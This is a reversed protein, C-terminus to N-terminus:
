KVPQGLINYRADGNVIVVQGNEIMKVVKTSVTKIDNIGTPVDGYNFTMKYLVTNAGLYDVVAKYSGNNFETVTAKLDICDVGDYDDTSLYLATYTSYVDEFTYEGAVQDTILAVYVEFGTAEKLGSFQIIGQTASADVLDTEDPTFEVEVTETPEPLPASTYTIHYVNGNTLTVTAEYDVGAAGQKPTLEAASYGIASTSTPGFWSYGAVMDALTYTHGLQLPTPDNTVIDFRFTNSADELVVYWDGDEEYYKASASTAVVEVTQKPGATYTIHYSTGNTLTVNAEYDTGENGQKPTLTAASYDVANNANPGFWSYGPDMDDLTYTHDFELPASSNTVVDFRFGTTGNSLVIFWDGDSAYYQASASTAEFEIPAAKPAVMHKNTVTSSSVFAEKMTAAVKETRQVSKLAQGFAVSAIMAVVAFTFFKKM